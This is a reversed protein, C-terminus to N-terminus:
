EFLKKIKCWLSCQHGMTGHPREKPMTPMKKVTRKVAKKTTKKVPRKAKKVPKRKVTRKPKTKKAKRKAPMYDGRFM